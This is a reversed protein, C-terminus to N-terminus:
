PTGKALMIKFEELTEVETSDIGALTAMADSAVDGVVALSFFRALPGSGASQVDGVRDVVGSLVTGTLDIRRAVAPHDGEDRLYVLGFGEGNEPRWGELENHNVEPITGSFAPSKANENIQTKWRYAATSGVGRGGYIVATRGALGDAIDRGLVIAGGEGGGLLHEVTDAAENLDTGFDAVQGAASLMATVAAAQYGVAARPQIGGPVELYPMSRERAIEGLRGGSAVAAVPLGHAIAADVGSLVEETNGSYSVAIVTAGSDAAWPPLGYAPHVVIPARPSAALAAVSAAMASGGMGLIVIPGSSRIPEPDLDIGWRLQGQLGLIDDLMTM